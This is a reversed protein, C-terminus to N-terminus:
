LEKAFNKKQKYKKRLKHEKVKKDINIYISLLVCM